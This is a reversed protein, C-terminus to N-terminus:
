AFENFLPHVILELELAMLQAKFFRQTMMCLAALNSHEHAASKPQQIHRDCTIWPTEKAARTETRAM